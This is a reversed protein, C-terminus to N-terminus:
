LVTCCCMRFRQRVEDTVTGHIVAVSNHVAGRANAVDITTTEEVTEAIEEEDSDDAIDEENSEDEEDSDFLFNVKKIHALKMKNNESKCWKVLTPCEDDIQLYELKTAQISDPLSRMGQCRGIVFRKLSTLEGLWEPVSITACRYLTLEQLSTLEVLGRPLGAQSLLVFCLARLSSLSHIIEPSTTLDSCDTITLKRLAPLHHLLRWQHMPVKSEAVELETLPSSSSTSCHSSREGWSSLMTDCGRICLYKASEGPLCPKIRLKGCQEIRLEELKPFLLENSGEEGSYHTTNWEELGEMRTLSLDRLNPLLGLPPLKNCKQFDCLYLYSVNPLYQGIGMLWDPICVSSYGTIDLTHVSSPPVLKELVEKDDVSRAADVTWEFKLNIIKQKEILKISHAEGASKVNELRDIMLVDPNTPELLVINSGCKDGSAHVEFYPLSACNFRSLSLEYWNVGKLNLVKLSVMQNISDPLKKLHCSSLDLTHLKRLNSISEPISSLEENESLVLHELNSLTSIKDLLSGIQYESPVMIRICSSLNLYKLKILNGIVEALGRRDTVIKYHVTLDLYQLKTFGGFAKSISVRCRSLDLHVLQTLEAFSIPLELIGNCDSLDLHMLGKMDGISEPLATIKESGRLNLYNLESLETICNPIMKDQIRPAHLFRLQKLQGICDPLKQIFCESLDLVRLCKAPSFASGRLQKNGCDQFHLARINAPFAVFYQLSERCDSLLTYRCNNGGVSIQHSLTEKALDYVLDHMTFLIVDENRKTDSSLTKSYQLFSMGLLQTVYNECLQMSDFISSQKIFGLAIWQHILDYKVIKHGKPFIACYSFCLRLWASMHSYSLRLSALVEHGELSSLNWIYSDRVSEWEDSTMGNLMYGLSQAALAVGGCKAAIERGIHELQEQDVRNEFDAKHKIITWCEDVTLTELKYPAVAPSCFKRALGGDRTTVIIVKSGVGLGLMVKLKDFEKPNEEWLDDLVILIRKGAFLEKLRNHLMQKTSINSIKDTLQMIISNGIKHLNFEPSVYVWVRTYDEFQQDNFVMQALTTKGIGGIGYIPLIVMKETIHESLISLIKQKEETRGIIVEEVDSSTERDPVQQVARNSSDTPMSNSHGNDNSNLEAVMMELMNSESRLGITPCPLVDIMQRKPIHTETKNLTDLVEAITPRNNRDLEMCRMATDICTQVQHSEELPYESTAKIRNKWNSLVKQTFQVVEDMEIHGSYGLSGTMIEIMVLGLSFVDNKRSIYGDKIFEPPMYAQTGKIQKTVQTHSQSIVRSLGFDAVKPMMSSDLLINAPKLDLHFIPPECRHLFNLGECIGKIIM